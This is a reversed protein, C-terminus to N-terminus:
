PTPSSQQRLHHVRILYLLAGLDYGAHVLIPPLLNDFVM